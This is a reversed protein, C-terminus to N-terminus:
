SAPLSMRASKANLSSPVFTTLARSLIFRFGTPICVSFALLKMNRELMVLTCVTRMLLFTFRLDMLLDTRNSNRDVCMFSCLLFPHHACFFVPPATGCGYHTPFPATLGAGPRGPPCPALWPGSGHVTKRRIYFRPM